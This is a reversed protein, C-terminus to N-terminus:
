KKHQLKRRSLFFSCRQYGEYVSFKECSIKQDNYVSCTRKEFKLHSCSLSISERSKYKFDSSSEQGSCETLRFDSRAWSIVAVIVPSLVHIWDQWTQTFHVSNVSVENINWEIRSVVSERIHCYKNFPPKYRYKICIYIHRTNQQPQYSITLCQFALLYFSWVASGTSRVLSKSGYPQSCLNHRLYRRVKSLAYYRAAPSSIRSM